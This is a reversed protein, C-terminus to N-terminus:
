IKKIVKIPKNKIKNMFINKIPINNNINNVIQPKNVQIMKINKINKIKQKITDDKFSTSYDERKNM